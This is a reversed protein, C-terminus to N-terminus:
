LSSGPFFIERTQKDQVLAAMVKAFDRPRRELLALRDVYEKLIPEVLFYVMNAGNLDFRLLRWLRPSAQNLRRSAAGARDLVGQAQLLSLLAGGLGGKLGRMQRRLKAIDRKTANLGAGQTMLKKCIHSALVAGMASALKKGMQKGVFRKTPNGLLNIAERLDSQDVDKIIGMSVAKTLSVTDISEPLVLAGDHYASQLVWEPIVATYENVISLVAQSLPNDLTDIEFTVLKEFCTTAFEYAALNEDGVQQFSEGGNLMLGEGTRQIGGALRQAKGVTQHRVGDVVGAIAPSVQDIPQLAERFSAPSTLNRYTPGHCGFNCKEWASEAEKGRAFFNINSTALDSRGSLYRKVGLESILNGDYLTDTNGM